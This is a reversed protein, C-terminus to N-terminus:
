SEDTGGASQRRRLRVVGLALLVLLGAGGVTGLGFLSGLLLGEGEGRPATTTPPTPAVDARALARDQESPQPPNPPTAEERFPELASRLHAIDAFRAEPPRALAKMVVGCLASPLGERATELPAPTGTTIQIIADNYGKAEFPLRGSLMQYLLVGLSYIDARADATHAERVQEPAMYNPTGLANGDQTLGPDSEGPGPILKSLGFDIVKIKPGEETDAIFVNSPKLDRHVVGAAHAAAVADLVPFLLRLAQAPSMPANRMMSELTEGVLLEMVLYYRGRDRAVRKVRVVNPHDIRAMAKYEQMLRMSNYGSKTAARPLWKIAVEEGRRLDTAAFVTGMGGEGLEVDLRYQGSLLDGVKLDPAAEASAPLLLM